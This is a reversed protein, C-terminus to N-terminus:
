QASLTFHLRRHSPQHRSGSTDCPAFPPSDGRSWRPLCPFTTQLSGLSLFGLCAAGKSSPVPSSASATSLFGARTRRSIVSYSAAGSHLVTRSFGEQARGTTGEKASVAVPTLGGEGLERADGSPWCMRSEFGLEGLNYSLSLIEENWSKCKPHVPLFICITETASM